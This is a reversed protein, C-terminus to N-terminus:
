PSSSREQAIDVEWLGVTNDGGTTAGSALLKGDPSFALARVQKNHGEISRISKGAAMDWLHIGKGASALLKGNPSIALTRVEKHGKLTGIQKGTAVDWLAIVTDPVKARILRLSTQIWSEPSLHRAM